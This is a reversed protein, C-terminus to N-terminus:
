EDEEEEDEDDESNELYDVLVSEVFESITADEEAAAVRLLKHVEDDLFLHVHRGNAMEYVGKRTTTISVTDYFLDSTL